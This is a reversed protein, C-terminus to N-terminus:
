ELVQQNWDPIEGDEGGIGIATNFIDADTINLNNMSARYVNSDYITARTLNANDLDAQKFDVNTLFASTLNAGTL